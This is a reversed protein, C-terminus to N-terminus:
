EIREPGPSRRAMRAKLNRLARRRGAVTTNAATLLVRFHMQAVLDRELQLILRTFEARDTM